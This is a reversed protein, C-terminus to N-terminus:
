YHPYLDSLDPPLEGKERQYAALARGIAELHQTCTAAADDVPVATPTLPATLGPSGGVLVQGIGFLVALPRSLPRKMASRRSAWRRVARAPRGDTRSSPRGISNSGRKSVPTM